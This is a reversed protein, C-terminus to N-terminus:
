LAVRGWAAFSGSANQCLSVLLCHQRNADPCAHQRVEVDDGEVAVVRKVFVPDQQWFYQKEELAGAAPNFIIVDGAKPDRAALVPGLERGRRAPICDTM